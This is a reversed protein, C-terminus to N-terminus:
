CNLYSEASKLIILVSNLFDKLYYINITRLKKSLMAYCILWKRFIMRAYVIYFSWIGFITNKTQPFTLIM